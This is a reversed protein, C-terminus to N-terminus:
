AAMPNSLGHTGIRGCADRRGKPRARLDAEMGQPISEPLSCVWGGAYVLGLFAAVLLELGLKARPLLFLLPLHCSRLAARDRTERFPPRHDELGWVVRLLEGFHKGICSGALCYSKPALRTVLHTHLVQCVSTM